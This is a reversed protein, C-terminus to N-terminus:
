LLQVLGALLGSFGANYDVAVENAIYDSRLDSYADGNLGTPGGVLAGVLAQPNPGASYFDSWGCAAPRNPCSSSRHHPQKPPNTGYGVV